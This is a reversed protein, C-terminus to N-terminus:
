STLEDVGGGEEEIVERKLKRRGWELHYDM